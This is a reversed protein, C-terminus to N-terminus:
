RDLLGGRGLLTRREEALTRRSEPEIRSPRVGVASNGYYTESPTHDTYGEKEEPVELLYPRQPAAALRYMYLYM